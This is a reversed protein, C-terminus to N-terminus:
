RWAYAQLESWRRELAARREAYSRDFKAVKRPKHHWRAHFDARERDLAHFAARLEALERERRAFARAHSGDYPRADRSPAAPVAARGDHDCGRDRAVAAAPFASALVAALVLKRTTSTM